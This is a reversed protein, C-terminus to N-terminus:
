KIKMLVTEIADNLSLRLPNVNVVDANEPVEFIEFFQKQGHYWRYKLKDKYYGQLGSKTSNTWKWEMDNSNIVDLSKEIFTFRKRDMSKLLICVNAKDVKQAVMDSKIKKENWHVMLATGLVNPDSDISLKDFGLESYKKFIDARQIVLEFTGGRQVNTQLAKASWGTRTKNDVIDFLKKERTETLPDVVPINKVYCFISEWIYDEIDDIFPIAYAAVIGNKLKEIQQPNLHSM